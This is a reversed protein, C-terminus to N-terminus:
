DKPYWDDDPIWWNLYATYPAAFPGNWAVRALPRYFAPWMMKPDHKIATAYWMWPGYSAAYVVPVALVTGLTWKAWRQRRNIVRVVLWVCFVAWVVLLIASVIEDPYLGADIVSTDENDDM